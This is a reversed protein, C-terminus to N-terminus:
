AGEANIPQRLLARRVGSYIALPVVTAWIVKGVFQGAVAETGLPFGAIWLFAVTDIPASVVNSALAATVFGRRRLPTFVGLDVLEAVLFALASAVALGPTAMFWSVASALLTATISWRVGGFRQVFDRALLALGAAYTGATVLLGFGVLVLGYRSTLVNAAVIAAVHAAFALALRTM